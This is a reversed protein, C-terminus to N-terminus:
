SDGRGAKDTQLLSYGLRACARAEEPLDLHDEREGVGVALNGALYALDEERAGVGFHWLLRGVVPGVGGFSPFRVAARHHFPRFSVTGHERLEIPKM